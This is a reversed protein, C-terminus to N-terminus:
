LTRLTFIQGRFKPCIVAPADLARRYKVLQVGVGRELDQKPPSSCSGRSKAPPAFLSTPTTLGGEVPRWLTYERSISVATETVASRFLRRQEGWDIMMRGQSKIAGIRYYTSHRIYACDYTMVVRNDHMAVAPFM